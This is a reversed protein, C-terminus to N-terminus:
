LIFSTMLILVVFLSLRVVLQFGVSKIPRKTVKLLEKRWVQVVALLTPEITALLTLPSIIQAILFPIFSVVFILWIFLPTTFRVKGRLSEVYLIFLVTVAIFIWSIGVIEIYNDYTSSSVVYVFPALLALAITGIVLELPNSQRSQSFLIIWCITVTGLFGLILFLELNPKILIIL